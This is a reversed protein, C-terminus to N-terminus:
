ITEDDKLLEDLKEDLNKLSVKKDDKKEAVTKTEEIKEISEAVSATQEQREARLRQQAQKALEEPTLKKRVIIQARVIEKDLRLDNNIKSLNEGNEMEFELAVYYGHVIKNIPYALKKKEPAEELGLVGEYKTIMNKIKERIVSLEDETYQNSVIYLLEYNTM